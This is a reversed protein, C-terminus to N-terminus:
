KNADEDVEIQIYTYESVHFCLKTKPSKASIEKCDAEKSIYTYQSLHM